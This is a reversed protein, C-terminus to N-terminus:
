GDGSTDGTLSQRYARPSLGYARKFFKSFFTPDCFHLRYSIESITLSTSELLHKAELANLEAIIQGATKGTLEKATESLYKSTVFLRDSYFSLDRQAIHHELVLRRFNMILEEKRGYQYRDAIHKRGITATEYITEVFSLYLLEHGFPRSAAKKSRKWLQSILHQYLKGEGGTLPWVSHYASSFFNLHEQSHEDPVKHKLFDLTFSFGEFASGESVSILKRTTAPSTIVLQNASVVHTNSDLAIVLDGGVVRIISFFDTRFASNPFGPSTGNRSLHKSRFVQFHETGAYENQALFLHRTDSHRLINKFRSM